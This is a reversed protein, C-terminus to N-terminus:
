VGGPMPSVPSPEARTWQRRLRALEDEKALRFSEASDRNLILTSAEEVRWGQSTEYAITADTLPIMAPRRGLHIMPDAGPPAHVYGHM